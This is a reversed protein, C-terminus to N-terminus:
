VKKYITNIWTESVVDYGKSKLYPDFIDNQKIWTFKWNKWYEVTELIIFNPRYKEWNNSELVDMDWWEVDVSLIDIEQNEPVYTDCLKELTWIPVSYTEVVKHWISKYREVTASDCTSMQDEDFTHFLMEGNSSWVWLQLNIDNPRKAKMKRILEKNPEVCIWKWEKLYFWYTNSWDIPKNAGIDIYFWKQKHQTLHELIIDEAAQAFYRKIGLLYAIARIPDKIAKFLNNFTFM